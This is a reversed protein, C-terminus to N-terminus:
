MIQLIKNQISIIFEFETLKNYSYLILGNRRESIFTLDIYKIFISSSLELYSQRNFRPVTISVELNVFFSVHGSELYFRLHFKSENCYRGKWGFACLCKYNGDPQDQCTAHNECLNGQICIGNSIHRVPNIISTNNM